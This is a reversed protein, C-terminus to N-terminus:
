AAPRYSHFAVQSGYVIEGSSVRHDLDDLQRLISQYHRLWHTFVPVGLLAFFVALTLSAAISLSTFHNAGLLALLAVLLPTIIATALVKRRTQLVSARAAAVDQVRVIDDNDM